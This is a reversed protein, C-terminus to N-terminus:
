MTKESVLDCFEDHDVIGLLQVVANVVDVSSYLCPPFPEDPPNQKANVHISISSIPPINRVCSQRTSSSVNVPALLM